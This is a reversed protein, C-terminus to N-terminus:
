ENLKERIAGMEKNIQVRLQEEQKTLEQYSGYEQQLYGYNGMTTEVVIDSRGDSNLDKVYVSNPKLLGGGVHLGVGAGIVAALVYNALAM